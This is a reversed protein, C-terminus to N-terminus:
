LTISDHSDYKEAVQDMESETFSQTDEYSDRVDPYGLPVTSAESHVDSFSAATGSYVNPTYSSSSSMYDPPSDYSGSPSTITPRPPPQNIISNLNYESLEGEDEKRVETLAVATANKQHVLKGLAAKGKVFCYPINM